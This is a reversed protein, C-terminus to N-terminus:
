AFLQRLIGLRGATDVNSSPLDYQLVWHATPPLPQDLTGHRVGAGRDARSRLESPPGHLHEDVHAV